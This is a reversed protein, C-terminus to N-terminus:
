DVKSLWRMLLFGAIAGKRPQNILPHVGDFVQALETRDLWLADELENPDITIQDTEAEAECGFMLNAPFPWPQSAVYRVESVKVSTEENVERRVAAEMTEGPEIFGALVSYMRDPWSPSRGLLVRDGHTVLMIVVPDTRPFHQGGCADCGRQWGGMVPNSEAGCRSCFRHSDHWGIVARATAALEADLASLFTMVARLEAFGMTEALDPHNQLSQDFFSGLETLDADPEWKSIDTAFIPGSSTRGLFVEIVPASLAVHDLPLRVLTNKETLVKGRWMVITTATPDNRLPSLDGRVEAARDYGSGAFSFTPEHTM